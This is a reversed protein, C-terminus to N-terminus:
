CKGEVFGWRGRGIYKIQLAELLKPRMSSPDGIPIKQGSLPGHWVSAWVGGRSEVDIKAECGTDVLDGDADLLAYSIYGLTGKKHSWVYRKVKRRYDEINQSQAIKRSNDNLQVRQEHQFKSIARAMADSAKTMETSLKEVTKNMTELATVKATLTQIQGALRDREGTVEELHAEVTKVPPLKEFRGKTKELTTVKFLLVKVQEALIDRQYKVEKMMTNTDEIQNIDKDSNAALSSIQLNKFNSQIHANSAALSRLQTVFQIKENKVEELEKKVEKVEETARAAELVSKTYLRSHIDKEKTVTSLRERLKESDRRAAGRCYQIEADLLSKEKKVADLEARLQKEVNERVTVEATLSEIKGTLEGQKEASQTQLFNLLDTVSRVKDSLEDREAKAGDLEKKLRRETSKQTALQSKVMKLEELKRKVAKPQERADDQATLKATLAKIQDLLEDEKEIAETKTTALRHSLDSIEAYLKEVRADLEDRETIVDDLEEKLRRDGNNQVALQSSLINVQNTLKGLEELHEYQEGELTDRLSQVQDHLSWLLENDVGIEDAAASLQKHLNWEHMEHEAVKEDLASLQAALGNREIRTELLETVLRDVEQKEKVWLKCWYEDVKDVFGRNWTEAISDSGSSSISSPTMVRLSDGSNSSM